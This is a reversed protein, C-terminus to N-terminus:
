FNLNEASTSSFSKSVFKSHLDSIRLFLNFCIANKIPESKTTLGCIKINETNLIGLREGYQNYIFNEM